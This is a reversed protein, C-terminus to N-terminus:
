TFFEVNMIRTQRAKKNNRKKKQRCMMLVVWGRHFTTLIIIFIESRIYRLKSSNSIFIPFLYLIFRRDNKMKKKAEEQEKHEWGLPELHLLLLIIFIIMRKPVNGHNIPFKRLDAFMVKCERAKELSFCGSCRQFCLLLNGGSASHFM